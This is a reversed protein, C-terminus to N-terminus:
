LRQAWGAFDQYRMLTRRQLKACRADTPCCRSLPRLPYYLPRIERLSWGKKATFECELHMRTIISLISRLKVGVCALELHLGYRSRSLLTM